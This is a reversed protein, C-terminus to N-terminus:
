VPPLMTLLEGLKTMLPKLTETIIRAADQITKGSVSAIIAADGAPGRVKALAEQARWYLKAGFTALEKTERTVAAELRRQENESFVRVKFLNLADDHERLDRLVEQMADTAADTQAIATDLANLIETAEEKSVQRSLEADAKTQIAEYAEPVCHELFDLHLRQFESLQFKLRNDFGANVLPDAMDQAVSGALFALRHPNAVDETNLHAAYSRLDARTAEGLKNTITEAIDQTNAILAARKQKCVTGLTDPTIEQGPPVKADVGAENFEVEVASARVIPARLANDFNSSVDDDEDVPEALWGEPFALRDPIRTHRDGRMVHFSNNQLYLTKSLDTGRVDANRLRYQAEPMRVATLNAGRLDALDLSCHFLFSNYLNAGILM